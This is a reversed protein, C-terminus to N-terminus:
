SIYLKSVLALLSAVLYKTVIGELAFEIAVAGQSIAVFVPIAFVVFGSSVLVIILIKAARTKNLMILFAAFFIAYGLYDGVLSLYHSVNALLLRTDASLSPFYANIKDLIRSAYVANSISSFLYILGALVAAITAYIRKKLSLIAGFTSM